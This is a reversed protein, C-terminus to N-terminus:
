DVWSKFEKYYIRATAILLPIFVIAATAFCCFATIMGWVMEWYNDM